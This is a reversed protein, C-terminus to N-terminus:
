SKYMASSLPGIRALCSRLSVSPAHQRADNSGDSLESEEEFQDPITGQRALMEIASLEGTEDNAIVHIVADGEATRGLGSTRVREDIPRHSVSVRSSARRTSQVISSARSTLGASGTAHISAASRPGRLGGVSLMANAVALAHRHLLCKSLPADSVASFSKV